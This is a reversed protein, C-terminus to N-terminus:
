GYTEGRESRELRCNYSGCKLWKSTLSFAKAFGETVVLKSPKIIELLEKLENIDNIEFNDSNLPKRRYKWLHIKEPFDQKLKEFDKKEIEQRKMEQERLGFVCGCYDQVYIGSFLERKKKGDIGKRFNSFLFRKGTAKEARKGENELMVISKRPSAMLTTSFLDFDMKQALSATVGLRLAICRRCREGGESEDELNRALAYFREEDYKGEMTELGYREAVQEFARLRKVYEEYPFINPNYFFATIKGNFDSKLHEMTVALDPGCCVHLLLKM